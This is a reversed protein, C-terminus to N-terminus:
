NTKTLKKSLLFTIRCKNQPKSTATKAEQPPKHIHCFFLHNAEIQININTMMM